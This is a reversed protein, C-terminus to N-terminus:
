DPLGITARRRLFDETEGENDYRYLIVIHTPVSQEAPVPEGPLLLSAPRGTGFFAVYRVIYGLPTHIYFLYVRDRMIFVRSQFVRNCAYCFAMTLEVTLPIRCRAWFNYTPLTEFGDWRTENTLDPSPYILSMRDFWGFGHTSPIAVFGSHVESFCGVMAKIFHIYFSQIRTFEHVLGWRTFDSEHGEDGEVDPDPARDVADPPLEDPDDGIWAFMFMFRTLFIFRPPNMTYRYDHRITIVEDTDM